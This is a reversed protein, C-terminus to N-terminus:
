KVMSALADLLEKRVGNWGEAGRMILKMGVEGVKCHLVGELNYLGIGPYSPDPRPDCNACARIEKLFEARAAKLFAEATAAKTSYFTIDLYIGGPQFLEIIKEPAPLYHWKARRVGSKEVEERRRKEKEYAALEQDYNPNPGRGQGIVLVLRDGKLLGRGLGALRPEMKGLADLRALVHDRDLEGAAPANSPERPLEEEQPKPQSQPQAPTPGHSQNCGVGLLVLVIIYRRTM